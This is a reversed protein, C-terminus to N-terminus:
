KFYVSFVVLGYGSASSLNILLEKSQPTKALAITSKFTGDPNVPIAIKNTIAENSSMVELYGLIGNVSQWGCGSITGSFEFVNDIKSLVKPSDVIIGCGVYAYSSDFEQKNITKQFPTGQRIFGILFLGLFFGTFILFIVSGGKQKM